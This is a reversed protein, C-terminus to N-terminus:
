YKICPVFKKYLEEKAGIDGNQANKLLELVRKM